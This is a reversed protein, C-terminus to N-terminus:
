RHASWLLQSEINISGRTAAAIIPGQNTRHSAPGGIACDLVARPRRSRALRRAPISLAWRCEYACGPTLMVPLRRPQDPVLCGVRGRTRSRASGPFAWHAVRNFVTGRTSQATSQSRLQGGHRCRSIHWVGNIIFNNNPKGRFRLHRNNCFDKQVASRFNEPSYVRSDLLCTPSRM